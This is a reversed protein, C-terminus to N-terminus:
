LLPSVFAHPKPPSTLSWEISNFNRNFLTQFLDTFYQPTLWPYRITVNGLTLQMYVIYLFLITAVVSVISGYSSVMNWGAFADPYDSIRRPM